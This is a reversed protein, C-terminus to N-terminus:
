TASRFSSSCSRRDLPNNGTWPIAHEVLDFYDDLLKQAEVRTCSAARCNASAMAIEAAMFARVTTAAFETITM